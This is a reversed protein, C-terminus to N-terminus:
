EVVGGLCLTKLLLGGERLGEIAGYDLGSSSVTVWFINLVLIMRLLDATRVVLWVDALAAVRFIANGAVTVLLSRM